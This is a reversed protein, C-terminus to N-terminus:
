RGSSLARTRCARKRDEASIAVTDFYGAWALTRAYHAPDDPLEPVAVLPLERRVLEREFPNDDLFM